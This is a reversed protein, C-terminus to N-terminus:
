KLLKEKVITELLGNKKDLTLEWFMIGKIGKQKLYNMKSTVSKKNDYTIFLEEDRNFAYPAQAASDWYEVFGGKLYTEIDKYNISTSYEGVQYLGNNQNKVNKWVRGYFAAGIVMQAPKVGNKQLYDVVQSTSTLQQAPSHLASHHGTNKSFGNYIDYTMLNVHNVQTMVTDWEISNDLYDKHAGAAFSIIPDQGLTSRLISVLSTFNQKDEPKFSHGPMGSIAPYEWDLDIGDAQYINLIKKVSKAFSLRNKASSFVESCTECGGWGGLSILVKLNPYQKKLSVLKTITEDQKEDAVALKNGRLRLFSYIIQDVQSLDHNDVESVGGMYYAIVLPDKASKAQEANVSNVLPMLLSLSFLLSVKLVNM